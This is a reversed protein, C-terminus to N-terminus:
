SKRLDYCFLYENHRLYLRGGVVVPHAWGPGGLGPRGPLNFKGRLRYATPDADLLVVTNDEYRFILKKDVCLVAGSRRGLQNTSWLVKGTAMELCIPNGGNHGHAGFIHDGLKLFGGHHCQFVNPGLWYVEEAKFTDGTKVLRLLASGTNYGTSVFVFDGDTVPTPINATGNAIRPYHWLLKGTQADVGVAGRGLLTVYQRVGGAESIVVSAYAAAGLNAGAPPVCKWIVEGTKRDLAVMAAQPGGPTCILKEGDVLPSESFKWGSMMRGGFDATLNKRWLEKGTNAEACVLDGETGLAYVRGDHVTPTCRSGDQHPPGVRLKWPIQRNNLDLALLFQSRQGEEDMDGMTYLRGGVIAVSSYGRGLGRTEWLLPPGEEPWSDALGTERSIADRQPGRWQPWDAASVPGLNFILSLGAALIAARRLAPSATSKM